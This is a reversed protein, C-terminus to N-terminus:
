ILISATAYILIAWGFRFVELTPSTSVASMHLISYDVRDFVLFIKFLTMFTEFLDAFNTYVDYANQLQAEAQPQPVTQSIIM